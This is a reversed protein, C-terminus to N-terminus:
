HDSRGLEALAEDLSSAIANWAESESESPNNMTQLSAELEREQRRRQLTLANAAAYRTTRCLWGSLVIGPGLTDAKRALIIFVVQVIERALHEARVQRLAVSYVLNIHRSVLAAFAEESQNRAYRRVLEMDDDIM